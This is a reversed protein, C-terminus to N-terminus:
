QGTVVVEDGEVHFKHNMDESCWEMYQVADDFRPDGARLVEPQLKKNILVPLFSAKKVGEKTLVFKAILSRNADKLGMNLDKYDPDIEVGYKKWDKMTYTKSTLFNGTSYFCVKGDIVEIGKPIHPHHGIILDAGAAFAARAATPQYEAIIRPIHHVGWHLILAVVHASEKAKKIDAVMNKLDQEDPFSRVTPPLGPQYDVGEYYTHARLPSIGVKNVEAAAGERLPTCYALIAIKVGKIEMMVPATAEALNRGAGLVHIDKAKLLDITDLLCEEGCDMGHNSAISVVNFGLDDYVSAMHPKLWNLRAGESHSIQPSGRDAYLRECQGIRIDGTALIPSALKSFESVPEHSPGIDGVGMLVVDDASM